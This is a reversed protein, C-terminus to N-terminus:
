SSGTSGSANGKGYGEVPEPHSGSKQYLVSNGFYTM